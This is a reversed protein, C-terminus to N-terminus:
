TGPMLIKLKWLILALLCDIDAPNLYVVDKIREKPVCDLLEEAQEGHPDIFALGYGKRIDQLALNGLLTTKGMGTKGIIYIHKRRDDLKIGFRKHKNRFNTEAFYNIYDNEM